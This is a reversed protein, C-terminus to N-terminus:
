SPEPSNANLRWITWNLASAVTVWALYPVFLLAATGSVPVATVIFLAVLLWLVVIDAFGLDMRRLGFFLWSWLFNALLQAFWIGMALGFGAKRWALWGSIAIMAYLITWVIPFARDPPTWAPKKLARYWDGPKFLAGGTATAIVLVIIVITM